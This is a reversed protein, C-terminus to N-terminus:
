TGPRYAYVRRVRHKNGRCNQCYNGNEKPPPAAFWCCQTSKGRSKNERKKIEEREKGKGEIPGNTERDRVLPFRLDVVM